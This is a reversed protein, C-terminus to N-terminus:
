ILKVFALVAKEEVSLVNNVYCTYNVTQYIFLHINKSIRILEKRWRQLKVAEPVRWLESLEM